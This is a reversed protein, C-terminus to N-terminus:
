YRRAREVNTMGAFAPVWSRLQPNETTAFIAERGQTTELAM